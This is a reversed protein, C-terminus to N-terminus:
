TTPPDACIFTWPRNVVRTLIVTARRSGTLRMRRRLEDVDGALGRRRVDVSGIDLRRLEAALPKLGFPLSAEVVLSRGFPSALLHDASLFAIRRDIQWAGLATALDAVAGARTVAPSPDLLYGGPPRVEAPGTDHDAVFSHVAGGALVTARSAGTAWAPSWLAAEKLERGEAVFETEWGHPVLARDIGPAAKICVRGAPLALCWDLDPSYGGRRGGSATATRRAPDVFVAGASPVRVHHVDAVVVSASAGGVRANHAAYRATTEDRDVGIVHQRRGIALLDGGIGCCLDLVSGAVEAFRTARHVAVAATTAQELGARTFLLRDADPFKATAHRRLDAQQTAAAVLDAPWRQRLREAAALDDVAAGVDPDALVELM